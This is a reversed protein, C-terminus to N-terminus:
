GERGAGSSSRDNGAASATATNRATVSEVSNDDDNVGGAGHDGNDDFRVSGRGPSYGSQQSGPSMSEEGLGEQLEEEDSDMAGGDVGATEGDEAGVTEGDGGGATAGDVEEVEMEEMEELNTVGDHKEHMTKVSREADLDYLAEAAAYNKNKKGAGDKKSLEEFQKVVDVFWEQNGLAGGEEEEELEEETLLTSTDEFWKCSAGEHIMAPDCYTNVVETVFEPHVGMDTLFNQLFFAPNKAMSLIMAEAEPRNPYVLQVAGGAEAQHVEAILTAAKNTGFKLLTTLVNRGSVRQIVKQGQKVAVKANLDLFGHVESVTMSANYNTSDRHFKGARKLDGMPSEWDVTETLHVHAGLIEKFVGMKKGEAVLKQFYEVDETASEIHICKRCIQLSKPM